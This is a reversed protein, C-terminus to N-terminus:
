KKHNEFVIYSYRGGLRKDAAHHPGFCDNIMPGYCLVSTFGRANAGPQTLIRVSLFM